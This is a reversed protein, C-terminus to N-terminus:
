RLKDEADLVKASLEIRASYGPEGFMGGEGQLVQRRNCALPM